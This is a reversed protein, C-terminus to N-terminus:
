NLRLVLEIFHQCDMCMDGGLKYYESYYKTARKYDTANLHNYIKVMAMHRTALFERVTHTLMSCGTAEFLFFYMQLYPTTSQYYQFDYNQDRILMRKLRSRDCNTIIHNLIPLMRNDSVSYTIRSKTLTHKNLSWALRCIGGSTKSVYTLALDNRGGISPKCPNFLRIRKDIREADNYSSAKGHTTLTWFEMDDLLNLSSHALRTRWLYKDSRTTLNQWGLLYSSIQRWIVIPLGCNLVINTVSKPTFIPLHELIQTGNTLDEIIVIEQVFVVDLEAVWCIGDIIEKCRSDGNELQDTFYIFLLSKDYQITSYIKYQPFTPSHWENPEGTSAKANLEETFRTELTNLLDVTIPENLTYKLLDVNFFLQDFLIVLGTAKEICRFTNQLRASNVVRSARYVGYAVM